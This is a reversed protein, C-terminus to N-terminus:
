GTANSVSGDSDIMKVAVDGIVDVRNAPGNMDARDNWTVDMPRPKAGSPQEQLVHMTGAGIVHALNQKPEISILPGTVVSKKADVVTAPSGLLQVHPEN